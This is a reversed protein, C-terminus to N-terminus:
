ETDKHCACKDNIISGHAQWWSAGYEDGSYGYVDQQQQGCAKCYRRYPNRDDRAYNGREGGHRVVWLVACIATVILTIITYKEFM